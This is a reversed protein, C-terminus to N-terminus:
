LGQAVVYLCKCGYNDYPCEFKPVRIIRPHKPFWGNKAKQYLHEICNRDFCLTWHLGQHTWDGTSTFHKCACNPVHGLGANCFELGKSNSLREYEEAIRIHVKGHIRCEDFTWDRCKECRIIHDQWTECSDEWCTAKSPTCNCPEDDWSEEETEENINNLPGPPTKEYERNSEINIAKEDDDRFALKGHFETALLSDEDDSGQHGERGKDNTLPVRTPSKDAETKQSLGERPPDMSRGGHEESIGHKAFIKQLEKISKTKEWAHLAEEWLEAPYERDPNKKQEEEIQQVLEEWIPEQIYQKEDLNPIIDSFMWDMIAELLPMETTMITAIQSDHIALGPNGKGSRCNRAIHGQKNCKFCKGDFKKKGQQANDGVAANLQMEVDGDRDKRNPKNKGKWNGPHRQEEYWRENQRTEIRSATEILEDLTDPQDDILALQDKTKGRLGGYYKSMLASENWSLNSAIQHFKATYEGITMKGQYLADMKGQATRELNPNGFAKFIQKKFEDYDGFIKKTAPKQKKPENVQFDRMYPEFWDFAPGKLYTGAFMVKDHPDASGLNNIRLHMDMSTLYRQLTSKKGEFVEAKNAKIGKFSKLAAIENAMAAIVEKMHSLEDVASAQAAKPTATGM